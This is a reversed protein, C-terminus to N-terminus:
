THKIKYKIFSLAYPAFNFLKEKIFYYKYM